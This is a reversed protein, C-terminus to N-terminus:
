LMRERSPAVDLMPIRANASPRYTVGGEPLTLLGWRRVVEGVAEEAITLALSAGPCEHRGRGFPCAPGTQDSGAALVVLVADGAKVQQGAVVTDRAAFRRTNQIPPEAALTTRIARAIPIDPATSARSLRVITSGILGAVADHAQFTFGILNAILAGHGLRERAFATRMAEVLPGALDEAVVDSMVSWLDEAARIGAAIEVDGAGPALCGAFDSALMAFGLQADEPVGYLAGLAFASVMFPYREDQTQSVGQKAAYRAADRVTVPDVADFASSIARKMRAHEHGDNMRVLRGFIEGARTGALPEPVRGVRPRVLFDTGELVTRVVDPHAAIWMRHHDSWVLSGSSALAAYTLEPREATVARIPDPSTTM